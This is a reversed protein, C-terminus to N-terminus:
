RLTKGMSFNCCAVRLQMGVPLLHLLSLLCTTILALTYLSINVDSDASILSKGRVFNSKKFHIHMHSVCFITLLSQYLFLLNLWAFYFGHNRLGVCGNIYFCHHDAREVCQDCDFCHNSDSTKLVECTPCLQHPGFKKVLELFPIKSNNKMKGPDRFMTLMMMIFKTLLILTLLGFWGRYNPIFPFVFLVLSLYTGLIM